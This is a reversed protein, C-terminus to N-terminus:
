FIIKRNNTGSKHGRFVYFLNGHLSIIKLKKLFILGTRWEFFGYSHMSFNQLDNYPTGTGANYELFYNILTFRKFWDTAINLAVRIDGTAAVERTESITNIYPFKLALEASKGLPLFISQERLLHYDKGAM